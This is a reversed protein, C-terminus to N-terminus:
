HTGSHEIKLGYQTHSRDIFVKPPAIERMSTMMDINNSRSMTKTLLAETAMIVDRTIM